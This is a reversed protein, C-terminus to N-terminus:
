FSYSLTLYGGGVAPMVGIDVSKDFPVEEWQEKTIFRGILGGAVGGIASFIVFDTSTYKAISGLSSVYSLLAGAPAGILVGWGWQSSKGMYAEIRSIDGTLLTKQEMLDLSRITITETSLSSVTGTYVKAGSNIRVRRGPTLAGTEQAEALAIGSLMIILMLSIVRVLKMEIGKLYLEKFCFHSLSTGVM